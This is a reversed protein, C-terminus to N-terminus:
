EAAAISMYPNWPGATGTRWFSTRSELEFRHYINRSGDYIVLTSGADSVTKFAYRDNRGGIWEWDTESTRVITGWDDGSGFNGRVLIRRVLRASTAQRRAASDKGEQVTAAAASASQDSRAVAGADPTVPAAAPWRPTLGTQQVIIWAGVLLMAAAAFRSGIKLWPRLVPIARIDRALGAMENRFGNTTVTIAHRDALEQLDAPLENKKPLCAGGVLVPIVVIPSSLATAIELRVWDEPADLRRRDAADRIDLWAPGIIVLMAKSTSLREKLVTPFSQGARVHDIDLFVNGKGFTAALYQAISIAHAPSDDRRYNIFIKDAM